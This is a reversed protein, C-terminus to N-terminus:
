SNRTVRASQGFAQECGCILSTPMMPAATGSVVLSAQEWHLAQTSEQGSCAIASAASLRGGPISVPRQRFQPWHMRAQGVPVM